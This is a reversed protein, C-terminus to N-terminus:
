RDQPVRQVRGYLREGNISNREVGSVGILLQRTASAASVAMGKTEIHIPLITMEWVQDRVRDSVGVLSAQQINSLLQVNLDKVLAGEM